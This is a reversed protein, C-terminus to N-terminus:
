DDLAIGQVREGPNKLLSQALTNAYTLTPVTFLSHARDSYYRAGRQDVVVDAIGELDPFTTLARELDEQIHRVGTSRMIKCRDILEAVRVRENPSVHDENLARTLLQQALSYNIPDIAIPTKRVGRRVFEATLGGLGTGIEVYQLQEDITQIDYQKAADRSTCYMRMGRHPFRLVIDQGPDPMERQFVLEYYSAPDRLILGGADDSLVTIQM